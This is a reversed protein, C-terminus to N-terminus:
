LTFLDKFRVAQRRSVEIKEGNTMEFMLGGNFWNEVKDIKHINIIHKRNSRFFDYPNLREELASLSKLILPKKGDINVKTYNGISEFYNVNTLQIFFCNEGDKIYVADAITLQKKETNILPSSETSADEEITLTLKEISQQLRNPDIPKLLYDLAQLDFAETAHKEYATVFIVYPVIDLQKVLEIGSLGPMNIDLFLVDPNLINILELGETGNKAEGIIEIIPFSKLLSKLEERALREDDILLATIKKM